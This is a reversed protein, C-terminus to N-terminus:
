IKENIEEIQDFNFGMKNLHCVDNCLMEFSTIGSAMIKKATPKTFIGLWEPMKEVSDSNACADNLTREVWQVLGGKHQSNHVWRAKNEQSTEIHLVSKNM